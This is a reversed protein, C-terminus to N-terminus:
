VCRMEHMWWLNELHKNNDGHWLHAHQSLLLDVSASMVCSILPSTSELRFLTWFSVKPYVPTRSAFGLCILFLQNDSDKELSDKFSLRDSTWQSGTNLEPHPNRTVLVQKETRRTACHLLEPSKIFQNLLQKNGRLFSLIKIKFLM